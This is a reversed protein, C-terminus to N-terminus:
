PPFATTPGYSISPFPNRNNWAISNQIKATKSHKAGPNVMNINVLSRNWHQNHMDEKADVNKELSQNFECTNGDELVHQPRNSSNSQDHDTWHKWCRELIGSAVYTWLGDAQVFQHKQGLSTLSNPMNHCFLLNPLLRSLSHSRTRIACWGM